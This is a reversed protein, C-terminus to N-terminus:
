RSYKRLLKVADTGDPIGANKRVKAFVEQAEESWIPYKSPKINSWILETDQNVKKNSM